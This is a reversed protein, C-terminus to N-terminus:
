KSEAEVSTVLVTGEALDGGTIETVTGNTLGIEVPIAVLEGNELTWVRSQGTELPTNDKRQQQPPRPMLLSLVGGSSEETTEQVPQFRLAANPVLLVNELKKVTITATATMGPRLVTSSNDVDLITDYTVVNETTSSGFNVRTVKAPFERNSFADVTFSADQGEKVLAIDAEDVGVELQMHSLDEALVFLTPTEFSAAVTQGEDINRTLVVGDIPSVITMKSRDTRYTELSAKSQQVAAEAQAVGAIARDLEAQKADIDQIAIGKGNTLERLKELRALDARKEKVTAEASLLEAKASALSAEGQQIQSDIRTTDLQALVQGATVFDNVEVNIVSVSGSQESGVEVENTPELNGTASVTVTLDGRKAVETKYRAETPKEANRTMAMMVIAGIVLCLILIVLPKWRRSRSHKQALLSSLDTEPTRTNEM